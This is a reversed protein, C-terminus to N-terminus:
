AAVPVRPRVERFTRTAKLTHGEEKVLAEIALEIAERAMEKAQAITKGWTVVGEIGPATAIYGRKEDPEILIHHMGYKTQILQKRRNM